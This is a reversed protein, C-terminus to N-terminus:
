GKKKAKKKPACTEFLKVIAGRSLRFMPMVLYRREVHNNYEAVEDALIKRDYKGFSSFLAFTPHDALNVFIHCVVDPAYQRVESVMVEFWEANALPVDDYASRNISILYDGARHEGTTIDEPNM